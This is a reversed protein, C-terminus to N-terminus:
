KVKIRFYGGQRMFFINESRVKINKWEDTKEWVKIKWSFM